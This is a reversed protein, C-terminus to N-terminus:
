NLEPVTRGAITTCLAAKGRTKKWLLIAPPFIPVPRQTRSGSFKTEHGDGIADFGLHVQGQLWGMYFQEILAMQVGAWGSVGMELQHHHCLRKITQSTHLAVLRNVPDQLILQLGAPLTAAYM